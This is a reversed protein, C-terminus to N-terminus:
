QQENEGANRQDTDAEEGSRAVWERNEKMGELGAELHDMHQAYREKKYPNSSEEDSMSRRVVVGPQVGWTPDEHERIDANEGIGAEEEEINTMFLRELSDERNMDETAQSEREDEDHMNHQADPGHPLWPFLAIQIM